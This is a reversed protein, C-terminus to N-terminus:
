SVKSSSRVVYAKLCHATYEAPVKNSIKELACRAEKHSKRLDNGRFTPLNVIGQMVDRRVLCYKTNGGDETYIQIM